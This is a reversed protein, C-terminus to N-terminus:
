KSKETRKSEARRRADEERRLERIHRILQRRAMRFVRELISKTWPGTFTFKQQGRGDLEEVVVLKRQKPKEPKKAKSNKLM